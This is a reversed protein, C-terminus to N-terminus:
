AGILKNPEYVVDETQESIPLISSVASSAFFLNGFSIFKAGGTMSEIIKSRDEASIRIGDKDGVLLLRFKKYERIKKGNNYLQLGEMKRVEREPM